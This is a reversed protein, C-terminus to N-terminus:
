SKRLIFNMALHWESIYICSFHDISSDGRYLAGCCVYAQCNQRCNTIQCSQISHMSAYLRLSTRRTPKLMCKKKLDRIHEHTQTHYRRITQFYNTPNKKM